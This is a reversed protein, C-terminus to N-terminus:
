APLTKFELHHLVVRGLDHNLCVAARRSSPDEKWSKWNRGLRGCGGRLDPLKVNSM